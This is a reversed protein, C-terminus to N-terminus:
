SVIEPRATRCKDCYRHRNSSEEERLRAAAERWQRAAIRNRQALLARVDRRVTARYLLRQNM